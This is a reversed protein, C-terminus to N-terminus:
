SLIVKEYVIRYIVRLFILIMPLVIYIQTSGQLYTHLEDKHFSPVPLSGTKVNIAATKNTTVGQLIINDILTQLRIFGNEVYGKTM